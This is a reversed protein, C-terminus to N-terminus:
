SRCARRGLPPLAVVREVIAKSAAARLAPDLADRAALVRERLARKAERLAPGSAREHRADIGDPGEM